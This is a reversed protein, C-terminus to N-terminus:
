GGIKTFIVRKEILKLQYGNEKAKKALASKKVLYYPQKPLPVGTKKEYQTDTLEFCLGSNFLNELNELKPKKSM